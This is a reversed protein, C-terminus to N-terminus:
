SGVVLGTAEDIAPMADLEAAVHAGGIVTYRLGARDLDTALGRESDQGMCLIITDAEILRAM